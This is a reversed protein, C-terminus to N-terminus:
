QKRLTLQIQQSALAFAETLTKEGKLAEDILALMAAEAAAYNYGRYWTKATLAQTALVSTARDTSTVLPALLSRLVPTRQAKALYTPVVDPRAVFQLFNWAENPHLSKKAVTEVWFSSVNVPQQLTVQPAAATTYNLNTARAKITPEDYPYGFFFTVKGQAFADLAPPQGANWSYVVKEPRAFDTYFRLAEEGPRYNPDSSSPLGFRVTSGTADVVETGNQLVLLALLDQARNVNASTGMATASRILNGDTDVVTLKPIDRVFEEWTRPAEPIGAANLHDKNVFMVMTDIGFPIASIQNNRVVERSVIDIYQNLLDAPTLSATKETVVKQEKFIGLRKVTQINYVSTEPPLPTIFDEYKRLIEAPLSFIDPGEDRAWGNILAQEYEEFRFKRYTISIYPHQSRYLNIVEAFNAPEDWVGWYTLSVPAPPLPKKTLMLLGVVAGGAILLVIILILLRKM